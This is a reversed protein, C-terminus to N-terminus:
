WWFTDNMSSFNFLFPSFDWWASGQQQTFVQIYWMNKRESTVSHKYWTWQICLKKVRITYVAPSVLIFLCCYWRMKVVSRINSQFGRPVLIFLQFYPFIEVKLFIMLIVFSHLFFEVILKLNCQHFTRWTLNQMFEEDDNKEVTKVSVSCKDWHSSKKWNSGHFNLVDLSSMTCSFGEEQKKKADHLLSPRACSFSSSSASSFNNVWFKKM